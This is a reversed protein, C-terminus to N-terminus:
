NWKIVEIKYFSLDSIRIKLKSTKIEDKQLDWAYMFTLEQESKEILICRYVSNKLGGTEYSLKYFRDGSLNKIDFVPKQKIIGEM